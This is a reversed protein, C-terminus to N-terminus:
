HASENNDGFVSAVGSQQIVKNLSMAEEVNDSWEWKFDAYLRSTQAQLNTLVALAEPRGSIGLGQIALRGIVEGLQQGRYKKHSFRLASRRWQDAETWKALYQLIAPNGQQSLHGLSQFVVLLSIFTSESVEGNQREFYQVLPLWASEEGIYGLVTVINVRAADYKPNDLMELLQPVADTGYSQAKEYSIGHIYQGSVFEELTMQQALISSSFLLFGFLLLCYSRNM